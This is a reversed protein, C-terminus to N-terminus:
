VNLYINCTGLLVHSDTAHFHEIIGRKAALTANVNAGRKHTGYADTVTHVKWVALSCYNMCMVTGFYELVAWLFSLSPSVAPNLKM